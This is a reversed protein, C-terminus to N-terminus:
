AAFAGKCCSRSKRSQFLAPRGGPISGEAVPSRPFEKVLEIPKMEREAASLIRGERLVYGLYLLCILVGAAVAGIQFSRPLSRGYNLWVTTALLVM